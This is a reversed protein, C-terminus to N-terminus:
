PNPQFKPLRDRTGISWDHFKLVKRRQRKLGSGVSTDFRTHRRHRRTISAAVWKRSESLHQHNVRLSGHAANLDPPLIHRPCRLKQWCNILNRDAWKASEGPSYSGAPMESTATAASSPHRPQDRLMLDSRSVKPLLWSLFSTCQRFRIPKRTELLEACRWTCARGQGPNGPM